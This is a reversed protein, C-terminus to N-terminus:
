VSQEAFGAKSPPKALLPTSPATGRMAQLRLVEQNMQMCHVGLSRDTVELEQLAQLLSQAQILESREEQVLHSLEEVAESSGVLSEASDGYLGSLARLVSESGEMAAILETEDLRLNSVSMMRLVKDLEQGLGNYSREFHETERSVPSLAAMQHSLVEDLEIIIKKRNLRMNMEYVEKELQSVHEQATFLQHEAKARQTSLSADAKALTYCWQVRKSWEM